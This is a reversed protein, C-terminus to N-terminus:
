GLRPYEDLCGRVGTAAGDPAISRPKPLSRTVTALFALLRPSLGPFSSEVEPALRFVGIDRILSYVKYTM